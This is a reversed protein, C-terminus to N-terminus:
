KSGNNEKVTTLASEVLSATFTDDFGTIAADDPVRIKM